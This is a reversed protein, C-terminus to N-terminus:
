NYIKLEFQADAHKRDKRKTKKETCSKVNGNINNNCMFFLKRMQQVAMCSCYEQLM